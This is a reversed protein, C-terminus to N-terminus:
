GTIFGHLPINQGMIDDHLAILSWAGWALVPLGCGQNRNGECRYVRRVHPACRLNLEGGSQKRYRHRM